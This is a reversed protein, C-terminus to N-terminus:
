PAVLDKAERSTVSSIEIENYISQYKIWGDGFYNIQCGQCDNEQCFKNKNIKCWQGIM